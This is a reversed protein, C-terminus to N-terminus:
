IDEIISIGAEVEAEVGAEVALGGAGAGVAVRLSVMVRQDSEIQTAEASLVIGLLMGETEVSLVIPPETIMGKMMGANRRGTVKRGVTIVATM